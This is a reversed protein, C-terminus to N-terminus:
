SVLTQEFNLTTVIQKQGFERENKWLSQIVGLARGMFWKGTWVLSMFVFHKTSLTSRCLVFAFSKPFQWFMCSTNSLNRAFAKTPPLRWKMWNLNWESAPWGETSVDTDRRMLKPRYRFSKAEYKTCGEDVSTLKRSSYSRASIVAIEYFLKM